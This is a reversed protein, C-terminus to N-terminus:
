VNNGTSYFERSYLCNISLSSMGVQIPEQKNKNCELMWNDHAVLSLEAFFGFSFSDM